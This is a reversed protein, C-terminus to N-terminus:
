QELEPSFPTVVTTLAFQPNPNAGTRAASWSRVIAIISLVTSKGCGSHGLLAVFEGPEIRVDFNKVVALPGTPTDFVKTLSTIELPRIPTPSTM